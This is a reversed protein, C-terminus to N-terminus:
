AGWGLAACLVPLAAGARVVGAAGTSVELFVNLFPIAPWVATPLLRLLACLTSFLVVWACVGLIAGTAQTVAALIMQDIPKPEGQARMQSGAEPEQREDAHALVRTLVGLALASATMSVLLILGARRSGICAAGVAGLLYAPGANVCFLQLRQAQPKSLLGREMMQAAIKVGMPYGGLLGLAIGWLAAPPQRMVAWLLAGRRRAPRLELQTFLGGLVFFPYMSPIIVQGCLALGQRAGQSALPSHVALLAALGLCIGMILWHLLWNGIKFRM